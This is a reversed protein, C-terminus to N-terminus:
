SNSRRPTHGHKTKFRAFLEDHPVLYWTRAYGPGTSPFLMWLDQGGYRPWDVTARGNLQVAFLTRDPTRLVFIKRV